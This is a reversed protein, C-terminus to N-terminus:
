VKQSKRKYEGRITPTECDNNERMYNRMYNRLYDKRKEIRKKRIEQKTLKPFEDM